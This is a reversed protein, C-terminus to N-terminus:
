AATAKKPQSISVLDQAIVHDIQFQRLEPIAGGWQYIAQPKIGLRRAMVAPSGFHDIAQKYTNTKNMDSHFCVKVLLQLYVKM